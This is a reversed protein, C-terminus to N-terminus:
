RIVPPRDAAPQGGHRHTTRHVLQTTAGEPAQEVQGLFGAVFADGILAGVGLLALENRLHIPREIAQRAALAHGPDQAVDLTLAQLSDRIEAAARQGRGLAADFRSVLADRAGDLPLAVM